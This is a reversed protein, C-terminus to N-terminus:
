VWARGLESNIVFSKSKSPELSTAPMKLIPIGNNAAQATPLGLSFVLALASIKKFM